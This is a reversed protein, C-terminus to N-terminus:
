KPYFFSLVQSEVMNLKNHYHLVSQALYQPYYIIIVGSYNKIEM